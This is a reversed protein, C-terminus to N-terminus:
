TVVEAPEYLGLQDLRIRMAAASVQFRRALVRPDRIGRGYFDRKIWTKPMLLCAAFYDAAREAQDYSSGFRNRAYLVEREPHDIIHKLEHAMSFRQRYWSDTKNVLLLWRGGAWRATAAFHKARVYRVEIRPLCEILQEPVCPETVGQAALLRHAQREALMRAEGPALGCAPSIRRVETIPNRM